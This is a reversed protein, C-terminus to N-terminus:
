SLSKLRLGACHFTRSPPVGDGARSVRASGLTRRYTEPHVREVIAHGPKAAFIDIKRADGSTKSGNKVDPANECAIIQALRRDSADSLDNGNESFM